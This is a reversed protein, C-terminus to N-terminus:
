DEDENSETEKWDDIVGHPTCVYLPVSQRGTRGLNGRHKGLDSCLSPGGLFGRVWYRHSRYWVCALSKM